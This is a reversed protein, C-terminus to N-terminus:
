HTVKPPRGSSRIAEVFVAVILPWQDTFVSDALVRDVTHIDTTADQGGLADPVIGIDYMDETILNVNGIEVCETAQADLTPLVLTQDDLQEAVIRAKGGGTLGEINVVSDAARNLYQALGAEGHDQRREAVVTETGTEVGKAVRLRVGVAIQVGATRAGTVPLANQDIAIRVVPVDANDQFAFRTIHRRGPRIRRGGRSLEDTVQSGVFLRTVLIASETEGNMPEQVIGVVQINVAKCSIWTGFNPKVDIAAILSQVRRDIHEIGSVLQDGARIRREGFLHAHQVQGLVVRCIDIDNIGVNQLLGEVTRVVMVCRIWTISSESKDYGTFRVRCTRRRIKNSNPAAIKFRVIRPIFKVIRGVQQAAQRLADVM